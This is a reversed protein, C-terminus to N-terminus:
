PGEILIECALKLVLFPEFATWSLEFYAQNRGTKFYCDEGVLLLVAMRLVQVMHSCYVVM